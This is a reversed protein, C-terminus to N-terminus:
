WSDRDFDCVGRLCQLVCNSTRVSQTTKWHEVIISQMVTIRERQRILFKFLWIKIDQIEQHLPSESIRTFSSRNPAKARGTRLHRLYNGIRYCLDGPSIAQARVWWAAVREDYHDDWERGCHKAIGSRCAIQWSILKENLINWCHGRFHNTEKYSKRWVNKYFLSVIFGVFLISNYINGLTKM